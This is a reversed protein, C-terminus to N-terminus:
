LPPLGYNQLINLLERSARERHESFVDRVGEVDGALLCNLIIRHEATSWMPKDRLRLTVMRARHAQDYLAAAIGALRKNGHVRLLERHFQDDADAWAELNNADMAAEMAQVTAELPGLEEKTPRRAALQAAAMPELTSLIDYIEKMDTAVVPLVRAGRRPKLEVLGEAELRILAERVPTRSMGLREAIEPEPAQFGPPMANTLIQDKLRHYADDVRSSRDERNQGQTMPSADTKQPM